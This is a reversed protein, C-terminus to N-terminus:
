ENGAERFIIERVRTKRLVKGRLIRAASRAEARAIHASHFCWGGGGTIDEFVAWAITELPERAACAEREARAIAEAFRLIAATANGYDTVVTDEDSIDSDGVGCEHALRIIEKKARDKSGGRL